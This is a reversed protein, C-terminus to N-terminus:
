ILFYVLNFTRQFILLLALEMCFKDSSGFGIKKPNKQTFVLFKVLKLCLEVIKPSRKPKPVMKQIKLSKKIEFTKSFYLTWFNTASKYSMWVGQFRVWNDFIYWIKHIEDFFIIFFFQLKKQIKLRKQRKQDRCGIGLKFGKAM